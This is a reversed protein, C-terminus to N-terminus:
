LNDLNSPAVPLRCAVRCGERMGDHGCHLVGPTDVAASDTSTDLQDFYEMYLQLHIIKIDIFDNLIDELLCVYSQFIPM